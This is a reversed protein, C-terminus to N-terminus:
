YFFQGPGNPGSYAALLVAQCVRTTKGAGPEAQLITVPHDGIAGLIQSVYEVIPLWVRWGKPMKCM